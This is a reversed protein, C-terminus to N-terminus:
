PTRNPGPRYHRIFRKMGFEYWHLGMERAENLARENTWGQRSIRYAAIVTGTRDRGEACHIFVRGDGDLWALPARLQEATPAAFGSMPFNVYKIGSATVALSEGATSHEGPRRLDVVTVVGLAALQPWADPRPQGGRYIRETVQHFNPIGEVAPAPAASAVAAILLTCVVTGPPTSFTRMSIM